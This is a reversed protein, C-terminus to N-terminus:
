KIIINTRKSTNMDSLELLKDKLFYVFENQEFNEFKKLHRM